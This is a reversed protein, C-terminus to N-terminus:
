IDNLLPKRFFVNVLNDITYVNEYCFTFIFGIDSKTHEQFKIALSYIPM